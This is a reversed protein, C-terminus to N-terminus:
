VVPEFKSFIVRELGRLELVGMEETDKQAYRVRFVGEAPDYEAATSNAGWDDHNPLGELDLTGKWIEDGRRQYIYVDQHGDGGFQVNAVLEPVGDGDLDVSYDEAGDFGFSEAIPFTEGGERAYYTRMEWYGGNSEAQVYGDYGLIGSFARTGEEQGGGAAPLHVQFVFKGQEYPVFYVAREAQSGDRRRIPLAFTGEDSRDLAYTEKEVVGSGNESTYYDEGVTLTDAGALALTLTEDGALTLTPLGDYDFDFQGDGYWAALISEGSTTTVTLSPGRRVWTLYVRSDLRAHSLLRELGEQTTIPGAAESDSFLSTIVWTESALAQRESRGGGADPYSWDVEEVQPKVCMLLFAAKAVCADFGNPDAPAEHFNLVLGRSDGMATASVSGPVDGCVGSSLLASFAETTNQGSLAELSLDAAKEWGLYEILARIGQASAGLDKVDRYGLKKAWSDLPDGDCYFTTVSSGSDTPFAFDVRDADATLALLLYAANGGMWVEEADDLEEAFRIHLVTDDGSAFSSVEYEGLSGTGMAELLTRVAESDAAREVRLDFLTRALDKQSRFSGMDDTSTVLRFQVVTDNTGTVGVGADYGTVAGSDKTSLLCTYLVAESNGELSYRGGSATGEAGIFAGAGTYHDKPLLITGTIEASDQMTLRCNLEGGFGGEEAYTVAATLTGAFRRATAGGNEQFGDLVWPDSSLLQGNEYVDVYIAWSQIPERLDCTFEATGAGGEVRVWSSAKGDSTCVMWVVLVAAVALFAVRPTEKKWALVHKVRRAADHEGFALATPFRRDMAYSVLSLSYGRKVQDGLQALVAEDCRMELDRCFLVWCLWAAANWWYVALVLCGLLKWWQDGWRLHYREHALVYTRENGDLHFPIYIRPRFYGLVFPTPIADCEWVNGGNWVAASVQRRLRLWSWVGYALLAALGVLWVVAVGKWILAQWDVATEAAAAPISIGAAPATVVPAAQVPAASPAAAVAESYEAVRELPRLNFISWPRVQWKVPCVLRLWVACWLVLSYKKPANLRALLWRAGLVVAMVPLATVALSVLQRFVATLLEM